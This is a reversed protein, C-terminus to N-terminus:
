AKQLETAAMKLEQLCRKFLNESLLSPVDYFIYFLILDWTTIGYNRLLKKVQTSNTLKESGLKIRLATTSPCMKEGQIFPGKCISNPNLASILEGLQNKSLSLKKLISKYVTKLM